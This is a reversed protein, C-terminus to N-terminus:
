QQKEFGWVIRYRRGLLPRKVAWEIERSEPSHKREYWLLYDSRASYLIEKSYYAPIKPLLVRQKFGNVYHDDVFKALHPYASHAEDVLRLELFFSFEEGKSLSHPFLVLNAEWVDGRSAPEVQLGVGPSATFTIQGQGTWRYKCKYTNVGPQKARVTIEQRFRYNQEDLMEYISNFSTIELQSNVAIMRRRARIFGAWLGIAILIVSLFLVGGFILLQSTFIGLLGSGIAGLGGALLIWQYSYISIGFAHHLWAFIGTWRADPNRGM